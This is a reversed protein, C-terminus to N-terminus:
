QAQSGGVPQLSCADGGTIRGDSDFRLVLTAAATFSIMWLSDAHSTESVGIASVQRMAFGHHMDLVAAVL